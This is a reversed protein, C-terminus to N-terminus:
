KAHYSTLRGDIERAARDPKDPDFVVVPFSAFDEPFESLSHRDTTLLIVPKHLAEAMGIEYGIWGGSVMEPSSAVVLVADSKRIETRIVKRFDDEAKIDQDLFTTITQDAAVERLALAIKRTVAADRRSSCVFLKRTSM